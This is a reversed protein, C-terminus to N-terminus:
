MSMQCLEPRNLLKKGEPLLLWTAGVEPKEDLLQPQTPIDARIQLRHSTRVHSGMCLPSSEVEALFLAM